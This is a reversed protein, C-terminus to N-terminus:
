TMNITMLCSKHIAKVSFCNHVLPLDSSFIEYVKGFFGLFIGFFGLFDWFIGFIGFFGLFGLFDWFIKRDRVSKQFHNVGRNHICEVDHPNYLCNITKLRVYQQLVITTNSCMLVNSKIM